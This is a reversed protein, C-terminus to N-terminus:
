AISEWVREIQDACRDWTFGRAHELGAAAFRARQMRVRDLADVVEEVDEPDVQVAAAGGTQSQPSGRSVIVPTGCAQAEVVPLAFGESTSLVAVAAARRVLAAMTRDDVEGVMRVTVGRFRAVVAVAYATRPGSVVVELDARAHEVARLVAGLNKKARVAGPALVYARGDVGIRELLDGDDGGAQSTFVADVGWACVRVKHAALPSGACVADATAASPCVVADARLPGVSAWLRHRSDANEDAGQLWPVEHITQVRAGRSLIPFASVPSHIGQLGLERVARGLERQRWTAVRARPPPAIRVVEIRGRRELAEVLGRTARVVGPPHPRRLPSVDFGIRM